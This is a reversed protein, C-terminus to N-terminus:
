EYNKFDENIGYSIFELKKNKFVSCVLFVKLKYKKVIQLIEQFWKEPKFISVHANRGNPLIIDAPYCAINLFVIKKSFSFIENLVWNLDQAPIHELVDLSIVIDFKKNYPKEYGDIGPDFLTPHVKWFEKIPPYLKNNFKREKFYFDGKGSGYDLLTKCQNKQIVKQIFDAFTLTAWGNYTEEPNKKNLNDRSSGELHIKKYQKALELYEKSPNQSSFNM